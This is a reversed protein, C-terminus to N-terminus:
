KNKNIKLAIMISVLLGGWITTYTILMLIKALNNM